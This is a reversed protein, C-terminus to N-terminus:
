LFNMKVMVIQYLGYEILSVSNPSGPLGGLGTMDDEPCIFTLVVGLGRSGAIEDELWFPISDCAESTLVNKTCALNM